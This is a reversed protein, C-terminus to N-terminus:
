GSSWSTAVMEWLSLRPKIVTCITIAAYVPDPDYRSHCPRSHPPFGLNSDDLGLGLALIGGGDGVSEILTQHCRPNYHRCLGSRPQVEFPAASLPSPLGHQGQGARAQSGTEGDYVPHIV